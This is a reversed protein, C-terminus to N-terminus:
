GVPCGAPAVEPVSVRYRVERGILTTVVSTGVVKEGPLASGDDYSVRICTTTAPFLAWYWPQGAPITRVGFPNPNTYGFWEYGADVTAPAYGKAVWTTAMANKAGDNLNAIDTTWAGVAALGTLGAIAIRQMVPTTLGARVAAYAVTAGVPLISPLFYRDFMLAGTLGQVALMGGTYGVAFMATLVFGPRAVGGESDRRRAPITVLATLVVAVLITAVLAGIAEEARFATLPTVAPAAGAVTEGYPFTTTVYNPLLKLSVRNRMSWAAVGIAAVAVAPVWWLRRLVLLARRPSALAAVPAVFLGLTMASRSLMSFAYESPWPTGGGAVMTGPIARRWLLFGVALALTLAGAAAGVLAQGYSRRRLREVLYGLAVCAAAALGFERVSFAWYGAVLAAALWGYGGRAHGMAKSGLLLATISLTDMYPDSMFSIALSGFLPSVAVAGVVIVSVLRPLFTRVLLYGAVLGWASVLATLAQLAVISHGVVAVLPAAIVLQGLLSAQSFEPAFVGTDVLRYLARVYVWDDNRLAGVAGRAWAALWYLVLVAVAVAAAVLGERRTVSSTAQM